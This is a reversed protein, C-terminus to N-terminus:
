PMFLLYIFGIIYIYIDNTKYIYVYVEVSGHGPPIESPRHTYRDHAYLYEMAIVATSVNEIICRFVIYSYFLPNEFIPLYNIFIM